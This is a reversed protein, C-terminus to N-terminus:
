YSYSFGTTLILPPGGVWTRRSALKRGELVPAIELQFALKRTVPKSFGFQLTNWTGEQIGGGTEMAENERGFVTDACAAAVVGAGVWWRTGGPRRWEASVAPWTLFWPECEPCGLSKAKPYYIVPMKLHVRFNGSPQALLYRFRLGGGPNHPVIGGLVGVSFRDTFGYALEAIAVYPIGTLLTAM